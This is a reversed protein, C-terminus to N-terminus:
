LAEIRHLYLLLVALIRCAASSINIIIISSTESVHMHVLIFLYLRVLPQTTLEM